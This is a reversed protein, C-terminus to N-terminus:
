GLQARKAANLTAVKKEIDAIKSNDDVYADKDDALHLYKIIQDHVKPVL